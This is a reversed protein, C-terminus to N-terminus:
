RVCSLYTEMAIQRTANTSMRTQDITLNHLIRESKRLLLLYFDTVIAYDSAANHDTLQGDLM